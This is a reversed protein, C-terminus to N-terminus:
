FPYEDDDEVPAIPISGAFSTAAPAAYGAPNAPAKAIHKVEPFDTPYHRDVKEYYKDNYDDHYLHVKMPKGTLAALFEALTEYDQGDPLRAASAIAMLQGFNFGDVALDDANPDKKKWVDDFIKGNQFRQEVDNRIVYKFGIKQAGSQLTRIEAGEIIVEYDGEPKLIFGESAKSNNTKFAM